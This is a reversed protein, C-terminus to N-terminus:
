TLISVAQGWIVPATQDPDVSNTMSAEFRLCFVQQSQCKLPQYIYTWQMYYTAVIKMFNPRM